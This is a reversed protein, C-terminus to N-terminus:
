PNNAANDKEALQAKKAALRQELRAVEDELAEKEGAAKRKNYEEFAKLEAEYKQVRSTYLMMQEDFSENLVTEEWNIAVSRASNGYASNTFSVVADNRNVQPPLKHLFDLMKAVTPNGDTTFDMIRNEALYKTPHKMDKRPDSPKRM